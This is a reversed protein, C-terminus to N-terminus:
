FQATPLGPWMALQSSLADLYPRLRSRVGRRTSRSRLRIQQCSGTLMWPLSGVIRYYGRVTYFQTVGVSPTLYLRASVARAPSATHV